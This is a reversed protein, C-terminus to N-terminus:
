DLLDVRARWKATQSSNPICSQDPGIWAVTFTGASSSM